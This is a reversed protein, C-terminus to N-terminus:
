RILCIHFDVTFYMAKKFLATNKFILKFFKTIMCFTIVYLIVEPLGVINHIQKGFNPPTRLVVM